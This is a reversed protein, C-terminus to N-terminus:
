WGIALWTYTISTGATVSPLIFAANTKTVATSGNLVPNSPAGAVSTAAAFLVGNPFAAPFTLPVTGFSGANGTWTGTKVIIRNSGPGTGILPPGTHQQILDGADSYSKPVLDSSTTPTGANYLRQTNLNIPATPIAMQDLRKAVVGADFDSITSRLQTGTHNSRDVVRAELQPLEAAGDGAIFASGNASQIRAATGAPFTNAGPAAGVAPDFDLLTTTAVFPSGQLHDAAATGVYLRASNPADSSGDDNPPPTTFRLGCRAKQVFSVTSGIGTSHTGTGAVDSDHWEYAGKLPRDTKQTSARRFGETYNASIFRTGDWGMPSSYGPAAFKESTQEVGSMNFSKYETGNDAFAVIRASGFDFSGVLIRGLVGMQTVGALTITGTVAGAVSFKKVINTDSAAFYLDTGDTSFAPMFVIFAGGVVASIDWSTVKAFSADFVVIEPAAAGNRVLAYWRTGVKVIGGVAADVYAAGFPLAQYTVAGADSIIAMRPQAGSQRQLVRWTTGERFLSGGFDPVATDIIPMGPILPWESQVTLATTPPTTGTALTVTSGRSIENNTGRVSMSGDVTLGRTYVDADIVNPEDPDSPFSVRSSGDPYTQRLGQSLNIDISAGSGDAIHVGNRTFVDNVIMVDTSVKDATIAGAQLLIAVNLFGTTIKAADLNGIMANEIQMSVWSAGDHRWQGVLLGGTFKFWSDGLQYSGPSSPNAGSYLIKNKGNATTQAVAAAAAAADAAQQANFAAIAADSAVKDTIPVWASGDWRNPTNAGGTINIWLNNANQNSGTPASVQAIIKGKTAVQGDTYTGASAIAAAQAAAAKSAADAAAASIAAAQAATAKTQADTAAAAQADAKAQNAKTTADTAAAAQAAAAKSAADAAAATKAANEAATAKTQADTAAAAIAAAQAADAKTQAATAAAATAANQAATAKTQADTAAAALADAKATNAKATADAAAAAVAANQAATAKTQADTAAAAIAASQAATAKAQADAPAEFALIETANAPRLSARDFVINKDTVTAFSSFAAMTFLEIRTFTGAYTPPRKVTKTVRYWKGTVAGPLEDALRIQADFNGGSSVWRVLSGAATLDGSVLYVDFTATLYQTNALTLIQQAAWGQAPAVVNFRLATPGTRFLTTERIPVAAGSPTWSTPFAQGSPWTDFSANLVYDDLTAANTASLQAADAIAKASNFANTAKTSADAAATAEAATKAANAKTTADGSAAAIAAAQAADAKTQAATAAAAVAAAQAADAKTQASAIAANQAATAKTQAGTPTEAANATSQAAAAANAAALADAIAQDAAMQAADAAAGAADLDDIIGQALDSTGARLPRGSLPTSLPGEGDIDQGAVRFVSDADYSLPAGDAGFAVDIVRSASSNALEGDVYVNYFLIPDASVPPEVVKLYVVGLAEFLEITPATSPALGDSAPPIVVSEVAIPDSVESISWKGSTTWAVLVVYYTGAALTISTEGWGQAAITASSPYTMPDDDAELMVHVDIRALDMPALDNDVWLGDWRVSAGEITTTFTPKTPTPPTPGNIQTTTHTGDNQKGIVQKLVGNVDYEEIKGDEISSTGLQPTSGKDRQAKEIRALQRALSRTTDAM